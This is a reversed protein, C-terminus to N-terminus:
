YNYLRVMSKLDVKFPFLTATNIFKIHEIFIIQLTKYDIQLYKPPIPWFNSNLINNYILEQAKNHVALLDGKKILFSKEKVTLGNVKINGHLIIQHIGKLSSAFHCRYLIVDLRTELLELFLFTPNIMVKTLKVKNLALNIKQKIVKKLLHGYFLSFKQKLILNNKYKKKFSGGFRFFFDKNHDYLNYFGKGKRKQNKLNLFFIFKEWKQKKFLNNLKLFKNRYQVNKQLRIFRKYLPGYRRNKIYIM